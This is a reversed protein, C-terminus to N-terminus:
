RGLVWGVAREVLGIGRGIRPGWLDWGDRCASSADRLFGQAIARAAPATVVAEHGNLGSPGVVDSPYPAWGAKDAPVVVDNAIALTLVRTGFLAAEGKIQDMLQSGPALQAVSPAHPDPMPGGKRAWWSAADLLVSGLWGRELDRGAAALPAGEHPSAFTVLHDIAPSGAHWASAELALYTRAVIGGQSHAILDVGRGPHRRAIKNLLGGLRGAAARIDGFTDTREYPEHLDDRDSGRYSFLYTDDPDYGLLGGGGEYLAASVGGSTKSGIGAVLVAVNDNPTTASLRPQRCPESGTASLLPERFAAPLTTPPEWVLPALHIADTMDLPGIFTEPDVYTGDLKIGLHLGPIGRHAEGVFGVWSGETVVDGAVVSIEALDSYTSELGGAHAITVANTGAVDGAFTVTGSAVARVLTGPPAAHDVGRHGPGWTTDPADFREGIAADVPPILWGARAPGCLVVVFVLALAGIRM